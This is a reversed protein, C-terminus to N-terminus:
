AAGGMSVMGRPTHGPAELVRLVQESGWVRDGM